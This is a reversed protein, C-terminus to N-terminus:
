GLYHRATMPLIGSSSDETLAILISANEDSTAWTLTVATPGANLKYASYYAIGSSSDFADGDAIETFSANNSSPDGAASAHSGGLILTCGAPPSGAAHVGTSTATDNVDENVFSLNSAVSTFNGSFYFLSHSFRDSSDIVYSYDATTATPDKLAHCYIHSDYINGSSTSKRVETLTESTNWSPTTTIDINARFQSLTVLMTCGSPVTHEEDVNTYFGPGTTTTEFFDSGLLTIAM